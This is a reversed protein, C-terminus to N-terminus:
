RQRCASKGPAFPLTNVVNLDLAAYDSFSSCSRVAASTGAVPHGVLTKSINVISVQKQRLMQKVSLQSLYLFGALTTSLLTNFDETTYEAFPKPPFIGANDILVDVRGFRNVATDVIKAATKRTVLTEDVLALNDSALFPHAKTINRSNGVVNHGRKLFTEALGAGIGQSAGTVIVTKQQHGAM